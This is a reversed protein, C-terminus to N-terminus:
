KKGYKNEYHITNIKDLLDQKVKLHIKLMKNEKCLDMNELDKKIIEEALDKITNEKEELNGLLTKIEEALDKDRTKRIYKILSELAYNEEEFINNSQM